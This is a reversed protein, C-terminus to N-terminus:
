RRHARAFADVEARLPMSPQAGRRTVKIAGAANAFHVADILDKEEAL